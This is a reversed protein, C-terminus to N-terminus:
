KRRRRRRGRSKVHLRNGQQQPVPRRRRSRMGYRELVANRRQKELVLWQEYEAPSLEQPPRNAKGQRVSALERRRRAQELRKRVSAFWGEVTTLQYTTLSAFEEPSLEAAIARRVVLKAKSSIRLEAASTSRKKERIQDLRGRATELDVERVATRHKDVWKSVANPRYGTAAAVEEPPIGAAVAEVLRPRVVERMYNQTAAQLRKRRREIRTLYVRIEEVVDERTKGRLGPESIM